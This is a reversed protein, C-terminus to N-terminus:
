RNIILAGCYECEKSEMHSLIVNSGCGTCEMNKPQPPTPQANITALVNRLDSEQLIPSGAVQTSQSQEVLLNEIKNVNREFRLKGDVIAGRPFHNNDMLYELDKEVSLEEQSVQEAIEKIHHIQHTFIVQRYRDVLKFFHKNQSSYFGTAIVLLVFSVAFVGVIYAYISNFFFGYLMYSVFSIILQTSILKYTFGKRYNLYRTSNARWIALPILVYPLFLSGSVLVHDLAEPQPEYKSHKQDKIQTAM